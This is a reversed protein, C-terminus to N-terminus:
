EEGGHKKLMGKVFGEPIPDGDKVLITVIGNNYKKKGVATKLSSKDKVFRGKVFGEPIPDGCKVRINIIGNNYYETHKTANSRQLYAEESLLMGSVFGEPCTKAKIQIIGNNYWKYNKNAISIKVLSEINLKRGILSKRIKEIRSKELKKGTLSKSIKNKTEETLKGRYNGGNQINYGKDVKNSHYIETIYYRELREAEEKTEVENLIDHQVNKWGYKQIARWVLPQGLINNKIRYYGSGDKRWRREPKQCTIGIYVKNNPFTHKYVTYVM